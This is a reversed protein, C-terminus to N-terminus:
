AGDMLRDAEFAVGSENDEDEIEDDKDEDDAHKYDGGFSEATSIPDDRRHEGASVWRNMMMKLLSTCNRPYDSPRSPPSSLQTSGRMPVKLIKEMHAVVSMNKNEERRDDIDEPSM